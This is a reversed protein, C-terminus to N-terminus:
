LEKLIQRISDARSIAVHTMSEGIRVVAERPLDSLLKKCDDENMPYLTHNDLTLQLDQNGLYGYLLAALPSQRIDFNTDSRRGKALIDYVTRDCSPCPKPAQPLFDVLGKCRHRRSPLDGMFLSMPTDDGGSLQAFASLVTMALLKAGVYVKGVGLNIECQRTKDAVDETSPVGQFAGFVLSPSLFQYFRYLQFLALHFERVSYLYQQRLTANTEDLLSWSNDLFVYRDSSGFNALDSNSVLAARQVAQVLEEESLNWQLHTSTAKFRKYLRDLSTEGTEPDPKRFPITSEICVAIQGLQPPDLHEALERVAVVASLFENVGQSAMEQGPPIGFISAVMALLPDEPDTIRLTSTSTSWELGELREKQRPSLTGDVSMYICDHFYASLIALPQYTPFASTASDTTTEQKPVFDQALDFVHQVSHYNRNANSMSEHIFIAMSELRASSIVRDPQLHELCQQIGTILRNLYTPSFDVETLDLSSVSSFSSHCNRQDTSDTLKLDSSSM